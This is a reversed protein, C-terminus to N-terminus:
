RSNHFVELMNDDVQLVSSPSGTISPAKIAVSNDLPSSHFSKFIRAEDWLNQEIFTSLTYAGGEVILSDINQEYLHKLIKPILQADFPLHLYAATESSKKQSETVLLTPLKDQFITAEKKIRLQRDLVVRLPSSGYFYRNNLSPNDIIATNTGILIAGVEGRWRHVLRKAYPNSIWFQQDAFGFIGDSTSAYKLIIYPRKRQTRCIFFSNRLRGESELCGIEVNVGKSKLKTISRGSVREDPDVQCIIVEKFGHSLLSDVCPPTRGFHFCPELSVYMSARMLVSTDKVMKIAEIEAHAGGVRTHYGEGIIKGDLVIVAGVIPNPSVKGRGLKALDLCRRIYLQHEKM